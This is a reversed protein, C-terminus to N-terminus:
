GLALRLQTIEPDQNPSSYFKPMEREENILLDRITLASVNGLERPEMKHLGGGYVRGEELLANPCIANLAEWVATLLAPKQELLKSVAPNPYLLLYVNSAIAKSHNLIFRFPRGSQSDSRGLYTCIFPTPLRQEQAYWPTRHQCLYRNHVEQEKGEELYAWLSPYRERLLSEPLRCNLVYLGNELIPTGDPHAEIIDTKLYRPSPLIPRFCELPLGRQAIVDSSLTFFKNDGTAIGRKITFFSSLPCDTLIKADLAPFRTWKPETRLAEVSVRKELRPTALSSGFTFTVQHNKPPAGNKLFLVASSVLADDFQVDNPDFRHVQLLTVRSLLYDKIAKGYNVDMFESPILWAGIGDESLWPHSLGLFHGYLGALGSLEMGSVEATKSQLRKKTDNELHHHRVYPPNCLILNFKEPKDLSPSAKTFDELHLSLNLDSWIQCAGYAKDIEFGTAAAIRTHPVTELLASYFAGTGFGPELFRIQTEPPLFSIAQKIIARALAPPTAFQGLKNRAEKTKTAEFSTLLLLRKQELTSPLDM